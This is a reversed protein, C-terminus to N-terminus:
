ESFFKHIASGVIAPKRTLISHDGEYFVLKGSVINSFERVAIELIAKDSNAAIILIPRNLSKVSLNSFPFQQFTDFLVRIFREDGYLERKKEVYDKYKSVGEFSSEIINLMIKPVITKWISYPVKSAITAVWPIGNEVVPCVVAIKKVRTPYKIAFATAIAGGLSFGVLFFPDKLHKTVMRLQSIYSKLDHRYLKTGLQEGRGILDYTLIKYRKGFMSKTTAAAQEAYGDIGHVFVLNGNSM